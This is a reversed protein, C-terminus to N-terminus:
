ITYVKHKKLYNIEFFWIKIFLTYELFLAIFYILNKSSNILYLKLESNLEENNIKDIFFLDILLSM